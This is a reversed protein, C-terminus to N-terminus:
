LAVRAICDAQGDMSARVSDGPSEVGEAPGTLDGVRAMWAPRTVAGCVDDVVDVDTVEL